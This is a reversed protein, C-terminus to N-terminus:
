LRIKKCGLADAEDEDHTIMLVLKDKEVEKILETVAGKIEEDLATFPEDMLLVDHTFALARIIAARRNMGGSLQSPYKNKHEALGVRDFLGDCKVRDRCVTLVNEYATLEPILRNEQFVYSIVGETIIEGKYKTDLGSIMRFLTTKGCGSPGLVAYFGSNKTELSFGDFVTKGNFSKQLNTIKIM